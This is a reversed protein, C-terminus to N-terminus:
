TPIFRHRLGMRNEADAFQEPVHQGLPRLQAARRGIERHHGPPKAIPGRYQAADAAVLQPALGGLPKGGHRDFCARQLRVCLVFGAPNCDGEVPILRLVGNM